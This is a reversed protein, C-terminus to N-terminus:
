LFINWYKFFIDWCKFCHFMISDCKFCEAVVYSCQNQVMSCVQPCWLHFCSVSDFYGNYCKIWDCLFMVFGSASVYVCCCGPKSQMKRREPSCLTALPWRETSEELRRPGTAYRSFLIRGDLIDCHHWLDPVIPLLPMHLRRHWPHRRCRLPPTAGRPRLQWWRRPLQAITTPPQHRPDSPPLHARHQCLPLQRLSHRHTRPRHPLPPSVPSTLPPFSTARTLDAISLLRHLVLPQSPAQYKM